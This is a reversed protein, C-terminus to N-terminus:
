DHKDPPKKHRSIRRFTASANSESEPYESVDLDETRGAEAPKKRSSRRVRETSPEDEAYDSDEPVDDDILHEFDGPEANVDLNPLSNFAFDAGGEPVEEEDNVLEELREKSIDILKHVNEPIEIPKYRAVHPLVRFAAVKEKLVTGDMQAVIYSGGKTRRIVIMPGLYRPYMKRDLSSEITTNRVQVLTGPAYNFNRMRNRHHKEFQRLAKRKNADVREIMQEVHTRHKALAMARFGILEELTWIRDPTKVLWTSEVIDLPLIPEAGTVLFYPSCGLSKRITVRDAWLVPKLFWWWRKLDGGTAKVLAERLDFHPREIKGNAQSNYPSITIGKIGYKEELWRLVARMQPANDSVVEEPCGWRTVFDEFFWEGIARATERKLARAEAWNTLACRGHIVNQCGNSAPSLKMVDIHVKQFLSPTHTLTPPMKQLTTQREQCSTCSRIFWDVDDEMGPWWFRKELLETTAYLGKHGLSDHAASMMWVRKEKPVVLQHIGTDELNLRYLRGDKSLFYRGCKDLFRQKRSKSMGDFHEAPPDEHYKRIKVLEEDVHKAYDTRHDESYPNEQSWDDDIEPPLMLVQAYTAATGYKGRHSQYVQLEEVRTLESANQLEEEFSEESSAIVSLYGGRTDIIDKFEEFEYPLSTEDDGLRFKVPEGDDDDEAVDEEERGRSTSIGGPPPRSLGDPGHVIGKVHVLEFQYKRIEEIWRNITANPGSSPNDLMGKIYSADTEVTLSRCGYTQYFSAQLALKLGFLERKPQSFRAERENLTISGFLNFIKRKPNGIDRQYLYFGVAHWSTDVALTLGYPNLYDVAKLAPADKIAEKLENVANIQAEGMEFLASPGVIKNLPRTILAYNKIFHRLQVATGLFSKVDTKSQFLKPDWSLIVDVFKEMPKEGEYSVKHGLVVGEDICLFAKPGSFTVGANKMRQCIRNVNQLHEWVFRRIGKNQPITEFEGPKDPLEYRTAPGKIPVDDVYPRTIHPIEDRLIYTVDDHFIPVSNTWGMPLKVLRHPGFPTQFTTLDRSEEHILREDYGVFIDLLGVCARGAFGEAVEASAPPIGSYQITVKNLPELSHVIRLSKKDKKLVCFWKSRYSSSSPEYVGADIKEKIIKCVEAFIGPPIPINKEVWPTHPLVPFRVPPFFDSRFMGGEEPSWAFAKEQKRLLYHMLKREEPWLFGEPHNKDIIAKREETYRGEPEFEPPHTALEPMGELPDGYINREVRFEEPLTAKVPRVKLAVPKYKGFVSKVEEFESPSTAHWMLVAAVDEKSGGNDIEDDIHECLKQIGRLQSRNIPHALWEAILANQLPLDSIMENLVDEPLADYYIKLAYMKIQKIPKLVRGLNRIEELFDSVLNPPRSASHRKKRLALQDIIIKALEGEFGTKTPDARLKKELDDLMALQGYDSVFDLVDMLKRWAGLQRIQFKRIREHESLRFEETKEDEAPRKPGEAARRVEKPDLHYIAVTSSQRQTGQRNIPMSTPGLNERRPNYVAYGDEVTHQLYSDVMRKAKVDEAALDAALLYAEALEEQQFKRDDPWKFGNIHVKGNEDMELTVAVEGQDPILEDLDM